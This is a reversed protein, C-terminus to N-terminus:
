MINKIGIRAHYLSVLQRSNDKVYFHPGCQQCSSSLWNNQHCVWRKGVPALKELDDFGVEEFAGLIDAAIMQFM